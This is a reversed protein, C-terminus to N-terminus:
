GNVKVDDTILLTRIAEYDMKKLPEPLRLLELWLKIDKKSNLWKYDIKKATHHIKLLRDLIGQIRMTDKFESTVGVTLGGVTMAIAAPPAAVFALLIGLTMASVGLVRGIEFQDRQGMMTQVTQLEINIKEISRETHAQQLEGNLGPIREQIESKSQELRNIQRCHDVAGQVGALAIRRTDEESFLKFSFLGIGDPVKIRLVRYEHSPGMSQQWIGEANFYIQGVGEILDTFGSFERDQDSPPKSVELALGLTWRNVVEVDGENGQVNLPLYKRRDFAKIAFNSILGGDVYKGWEDKPIRQGNRLVHLFRPKFAGPITASAAAADSIIVNKWKPEESNIRDVRRHKLNSCMVHLHKYPKEERILQKLRGFTCNKIGTKKEILKEIWLRLKEGECLGSYNLLWGSVGAAIGAAKKVGPLKALAPLAAPFAKIFEGILATQTTRLDEQFAEKSTPIKLKKLAALSFDGDLFSEFDQTALIEQLEEASYGVAFLVAQIAGASTGAVRKVAKLHGAKQLVGLASPFVLGKPGGGQFVLNKPPYLPWKWPKDSLDKQNRALNVLHNKLAGKKAFDVPGKGDEDLSQIDCGLDALWDVAAQCGGKAAWHLATRQKSDTVELPVGHFQLIEMSEVDGLNAALMLPTRGNRDVGMILLKTTKEAHKACLHKLVEIGGDRIALHLLSGHEPHVVMAMSDDKDAELLLDVLALNGTIVAFQIPMMKADFNSSNPPACEVKPNAKNQLLFSAIAVYGKLVAIHLPAKGEQDRENIDSADWLKMVQELNGRRVAEHLPFSKAPSAGVSSTSASTGRVHSSVSSAERKSPGPNQDKKENKKVDDSKAQHFKPAKWKTMPNAEGASASDNLSSTVIGPQSSSPAGNPPADRKMGPLLEDGMGAVEFQRLSVSSGVGNITM